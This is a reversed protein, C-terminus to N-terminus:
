PSTASISQMFELLAQHFVGPQDLYCAHGAGPLILVRVNRFSRALVDATAASFVSDNQGWVILAPLRLNVLKAAYKPAGAPAVPVFGAFAEPHKLLLPFTFRGSMSPAVVVPKDIGLLPLIHELFSEPDVNAAGSKGFGPLDLALVRYGKGAILEITGLKQWTNSNFSAGHLLLLAAASTPGASLYHVGAGRFEIKHSAIRSGAGLSTAETASQLGSNTEATNGEVFRTGHTTSPENGTKTESQKTM